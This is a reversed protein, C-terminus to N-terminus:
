AETQTDYVERAEMDNPFWIAQIVFKSGEARLDVWVTVGESLLCAERAPYKTSIQTTLNGIQLTFKVDALGDDDALRVSETQSSARGIVCLRSREITVRPNSRRPPPDSIIM